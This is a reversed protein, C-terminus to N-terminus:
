HLASRANCVLDTNVIQSYTTSLIPSDGTQPKLVRTTETESVVAILRGVGLVHIGDAAIGSREITSVWFVYSGNIICWSSLNPDSRSAHSCATLATNFLRSCDTMLFRARRSPCSYDGIELDPSCATMNM